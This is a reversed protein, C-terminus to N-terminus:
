LRRRQMKLPKRAKKQGRATTERQPHLQPGHHQQLLGKRTEIIVGGATSPVMRREEGRYGVFSAWRRRADWGIKRSEVGWQKKRL